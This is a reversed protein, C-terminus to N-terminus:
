DTKQPCNGPFGELDCVRLAPEGSFVDVDNPHALRKDLMVRIAETDGTRALRIISDQRAPDVRRQITLGFSPDGTCTKALM